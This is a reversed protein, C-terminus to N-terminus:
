RRTADRERLRQLILHLHGTYRLAICNPSPGLAGLQDRARETAMACNARAATAWRRALRDAAALTTGTGNTPTVGFKHHRPGAFDDAGSTAAGLRVEAKPFM